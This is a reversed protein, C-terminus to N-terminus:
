PQAAIEERVIQNILKGDARGKFRPMLKGMVAGLDKSGAAIVEKAAVRIEDAGVAPPLYAQLAALEASERAVLDARAGRTYAEISERRRKIASLVVTLAEADDLAHGLEIERNGFESLLTSFLLTRDTERNRRAATLATRVQDVLPSSM